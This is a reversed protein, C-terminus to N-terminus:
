PLYFFLNLLYVQPQLSPESTLLRVMRVDIGLLECGGTILELPDLARRQRSQYKFENAYWVFRM